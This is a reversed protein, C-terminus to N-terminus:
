KELKGDELESIYDNMDNEKFNYRFYDDSKASKSKKYQAKIIEDIIKEINDVTKGWTFNEIVRNYLNNSLTKRLKEDTILNELLFELNENNNSTILGYKKNPVVELIGKQDSVIVSCKMLGAEIVSLGLGEPWIPAYVFINTKAYLKMLEDHSLYGLLKIRDSNYKDKIYDLLNGKGAIYLYINDYKKSLNSFADLLNLVGKQKLLRGAYTIIIKKNDKKITYNESDKINVAGNLTGSSIIKFHKLWNNSAGSIGYFNKVKKKLLFTIFHEYWSGFLDLIKNDVTLHACGHDILICPILNDNAFNAGIHSNLFFRTNLIIFDVKEESLKLMTDKYLSNKKPIPYRSSFIKHVPLRFIKLNGHKEINSLKEDYQSTVIIVKYGRRLLEEGINKVYNELGGLHPPYYESFIAITKVKEINKNNQKIKKSEYFFVITYSILLFISSILYSYVSGNLNYKLILFYASVTSIICTILYIIVQIFTKRMLILASSFTSAIATLSAAVIILMLNYLQDNLKLNYIFNLVPIGLLYAGILIVISVIIIVVIVKFIIGVFTKKDNKKYSSNLDTLVPQVFFQCMLMVITAPMIIISFITQATNDLLRDIVFKQANVLYMSLLTFLFVSFSAKILEIIESKNFNYIITKLKKANKIDYFFLFLIYLLCLLTSALILNKTLINSLVFVFIALTSRYFLSKGVIFLKNNQQIIAHYVDSMAELCKLFAFIIILSTKYLDYRNIVAFIIAILMTFISIIIRTYIYTSDKFQEKTDTVQFTRGFYLAIVSIVCSFSFAFSYIGAINTGNIRTVSILFFLSIFSNATIGITNWIFDKKKSNM